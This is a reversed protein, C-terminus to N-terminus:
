CNSVLALEFLSLVFGMQDLSNLLYLYHFIFFIDSPLSHVDWFSSNSVSIPFSQLRKCKTHLLCHQSYSVGGWKSRSLNLCFILLFMYVKVSPFIWMKIAILRFVDEMVELCSNITNFFRWKVLISTAGSFFILECRKGGVPFQIHLQFACNPMFTAACRAAVDQAM